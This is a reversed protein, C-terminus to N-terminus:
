CDLITPLAVADAVPLQREASAGALARKISVSFRFKM